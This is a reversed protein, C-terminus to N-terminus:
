RWRMCNNSIPLSYYLLTCLITQVTKFSFVRNMAASALNMFTRDCQPKQVQDQSNESKLNRYLNRLGYPLARFPTHSEM